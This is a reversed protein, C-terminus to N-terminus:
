EVYLVWDADNPKKPLAVTGSESVTLTVPSQQAGTQPDFWVATVVRGPALNALTGTETGTSYFYFVFRKAQEHAAVALRREWNASGRPQRYGSGNTAQMLESNDKDPEYAAVYFVKAGPMFRMEGGSFEPVLKWWEHEILFKKLYGMQIASPLELAEPWKIAKDEPTVTSVGDHRSTTNMDYTSQYLWIDEAGYGYGYLGTLYAYWGQARAGFDKTWLYCYKGEYLVAPKGQGDNWFDKPVSLDFPRNLPHSWQVGYWTHGPVNQFLSPHINKGNGTRTVHGMANEQHATIPHRYPDYQYLWQCVKVYPNNNRDFKGYFDDDVEQGLTWLVPYASYRAVWYRSLRELYADNHEIAKMENPFFFQANAHVLGKQAIYAFYKDMKQFGKVDRSSIGDSYDIGIKDPDSLYVSIGIPESQYVTFGQEVRRGGITKFHSKTPAEGVQSNIEEQSGRSDFRGVPASKPLRATARDPLPAEGDFEEAMMSWHTDGLYFFPTGDAYVFYKLGEKTTVFGRRYIELDGDYPVAKLSGSKGNLGADEKCSTQFKWVGLETPAFRVRWVKGGDWFAPVNLVTGSESTFAVDLTVDNFAQAGSLTPEQNSAPIKSDPKNTPMVEDKQGHPKAGSWDKESHFEFETATWIPVLKEEGYCVSAIAFLILTLLPYHNKM